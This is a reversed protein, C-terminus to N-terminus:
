GDVLRERGRGEEGWVDQDDGENGGPEDGGGVEVGLWGNGRGGHIRVERRRRRRLGSGRM